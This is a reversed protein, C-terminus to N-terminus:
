IISTINNSKTEENKTEENKTEENKTYSVSNKYNKVVNKSIMNLIYILAFGIQIITPMFLIIFIPIFTYLNRGFYSIM